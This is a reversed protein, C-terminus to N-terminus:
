VGFIVMCQVVMKSNKSWCRNGFWINEQVSVQHFAEQLISVGFYSFDSMLLHVHVLCGDQFEEVM